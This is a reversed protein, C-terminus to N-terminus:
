PAQRGEKSPTERPPFPTPFSKEFGKKIKEVEKKQDENLVEMVKEEAEKQVKAIKDKQEKTLKLMGEMFPPVIHGPFMRGAGQFPPQPGGFPPFTSPITPLEKKLEEYKKKQEETLLAKLKGETEAHQKRSSAFFEQGLQGMKGVDSPNMDKRMKEITDHFKTMSEKQKEGFEKVLTDVKEKQEDSLKLKEQMKPTLLQPQITFVGEKPPFTKPPKPDEASSVVTVVLLSLVLGSVGFWLRNM